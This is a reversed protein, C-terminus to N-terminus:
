RYKDMTRTVDGEGWSFEVWHGGLLWENPHRRAVHLVCYLQLSESQALIGTGVDSLWVIGGSPLNAISTHLSV